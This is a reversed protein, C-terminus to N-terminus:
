QMWPTVRKGALRIERGLSLTAEAYIRPIRARVMIDEEAKSRSGM